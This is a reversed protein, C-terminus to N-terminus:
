SDATIAEPKQPKISPIVALAMAQMSSSASFYPGAGSAKRTTGITPANRISKVFESMTVVIAFQSRHSLKGGTDCNPFTANREKEFLEMILKTLIPTGATRGGYREGPQRRRSLYRMATFRM